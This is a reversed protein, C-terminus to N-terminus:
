FQAFRQIIECGGIIIKKSTDIKLKLVTWCQLFVLIGFDSKGGRILIDYEYKIKLKSFQEDNFKSKLLKHKSNILKFKFLTNSLGFSIDVM